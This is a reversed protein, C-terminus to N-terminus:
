WNKTQTLHEIIIVVNLCENHMTKVQQQQDLNRNGLIIFLIM